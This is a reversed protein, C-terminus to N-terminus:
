RQENFLLLRRHWLADRRREVNLPMRINCMLINTINLSHMIWWQIRWM